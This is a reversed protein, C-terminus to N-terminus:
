RTSISMWRIWVRWRRHNMSHFHEEMTDMGDVEVMNSDVMNMGEEGL